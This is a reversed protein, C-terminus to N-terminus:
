RRGKEVGERRSKREEWGENDEGQRKWVGQLERRGEGTRDM